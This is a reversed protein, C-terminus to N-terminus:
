FVQSLTWRLATDLIPRSVTRTCIICSLVSWLIHSQSTCKRQTSSPWRHTSCVLSIHGALRLILKHVYIPASTSASAPLFQPSSTTYPTQVESDSDESLGDKEATVIFDSDSNSEPPQDFMASLDAGLSSLNSTPHTDSAPLKGKMALPELFLDNGLLGFRRLDLPLVDSLYEEFGGAANEPAENPCGLLM